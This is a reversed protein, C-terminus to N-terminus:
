AQPQHDHKGRRALRSGLRTRLRALVMRDEPSLGLRLIAGAYVAFLVVIQIFTSIGSPAPLLQGLKALGIAVLGALIPKAFSADYPLLRFLSYVQIMRLLNITGVAVLASTAAGMVGWPPILLASLGLSIGLRIISNILKWGAHGTMDLIIGCMGTSIDVMIGCALLVLAPSGVVYSEGFIALIQSPFLVITLFIPLNLMFSWKTTTQYIRGMQAWKGQDYLEAIIPRAATAVASQFMSGVMNLQNAVAFVGVSSVTNLAGLLLTQVNDRFTTMLDSFFVPLAFQFIERSERRATGPARRLSFLRRHLFSLLMAASIAVALGYIVLAGAASVGVVILGAILLLRLLPQTVDRALTAYQMKKFGQTAAAIVNSLTLFPVVASALRLLPGLRPEHFIRVAIVDSLLYLGGGLWLSLAVTVGLGLQITGWVRADDRRQAFMAIYRVMATDLGLAALAAIVTLTTLSLNYLGYHESGLLRALLFTIVLRCGFTFLKGAFTIGGGKAALLMNRDAARPRLTDSINLAEPM